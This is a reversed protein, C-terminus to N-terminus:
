LECATYIGVVMLCCVKGHVNSVGRLDVPPAARRGRSVPLSLFTEQSDGRRTDTSPDRTGGPMRLGICGSCRAASCSRPNSPFIQAERGVEAEM